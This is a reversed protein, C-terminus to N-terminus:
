EYRGCPKTAKIFLFARMPGISVLRLLATQLHATQASDRRVEDHM